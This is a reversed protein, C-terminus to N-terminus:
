SAPRGAADARRFLKEGNQRQVAVCRELKQVDLLGELKGSLFSGAFLVPLKEKPM